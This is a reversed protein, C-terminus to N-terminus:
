AQRRRSRWTSRQPATTSFGIPETEDVKIVKGVVVDDGSKGVGVDDGSKVPPAEDGGDKCLSQIDSEEVQAPSGGSVCSSCYGDGPALDRWTKKIGCGKCDISIEDCNSAIPDETSVLGSSSEELGENKMRQKEHSTSAEKAQEKEKKKM